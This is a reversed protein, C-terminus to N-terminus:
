KNSHRGIEASEDPWYQFVSYSEHGGMPGGAHPSTFFAYVSPYHLQDTLLMLASMTCSFLESCALRGTLM